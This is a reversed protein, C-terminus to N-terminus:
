FTVLAYVWSKHADRDPTILGSENESFYSAHRLALSLHENIKLMAEFDIEEGYEVSKKDAEFHHLRLFLTFKEAYPSDLNWNMVMKAYLDKLGLPATGPLFRDAWGNMSHLTALPTTLQGQLLEWGLDFNWELANAQYSTGLIFHWYNEDYANIDSSDAYDTQHAFEATYRIRLGNYPIDGDLRIGYTKNSLSALQDDLDMLFGYGTVRHNPIGRYDIVAYPLDSSRNDDGDHPKFISKIKYIYGGSLFTNPFLALNRVTVAGFTQENQRWGVNGLFRHNLVSLAQDGYKLSAEYGNFAFRYALWAQNIDTYGYDLEIPYATNGNTSDNIDDDSLHNNNDLEILADFGKYAATHYSVRTLLTTVDGVRLDDEEIHTHRLRAKFALNGKTLAELFNPSPPAQTATESQASFGVLLLLVLSVAASLLTLKM